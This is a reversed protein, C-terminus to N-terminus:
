GQQTIFQSHAATLNSVIRDEIEVDRSAEEDTLVLEAQTDPTVVVVYGRRTDLVNAVVAQHRYTALARRARDLLISPDTELKFSIVFAQPAWDKVLPSLMKPVMKMSIQLPGNSSQIKHEPMDSAPIYFDSVAAALYFMANSGIPSLAQAAAKLLHLYESLTSFEVPLLLGAKKVAQYRMLIKAINPLAQQNVVVQDSVSGGKGSELQLSDLLNIGSYLRTFPYLSRHRHLFIVAYGSELFYEASSAGRRGSSFNDLFRVTRSELPVKTGGSTILVVRHGAARHQVAFAAMQGKVEEVHSPVAFEESLKGEATLTRPDAMGPQGVLPPFM